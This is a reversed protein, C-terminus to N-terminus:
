IILILNSYTCLLLICAPAIVGQALLDNWIAGQNTNDNTDQGKISTRSTSVEFYRFVINIQSM